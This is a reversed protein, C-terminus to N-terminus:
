RQRGRPAPRPTRPAPAPADSREGLQGIQTTVAAFGGDEGDEGGNHEHEEAWEPEVTPVGTQFHSPRSTETPWWSPPWPHGTPNPVFIQEGNPFGSSPLKVISFGNPKVVLESVELAHQFPCGSSSVCKIRPEGNYGHMVERGSWGDIFTNPLVVFDDADAM